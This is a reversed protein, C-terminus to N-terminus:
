VGQMVMPTLSSQNSKGGKQQPNSSQSQSKNSGGGKRPRSVSSHMDPCMQTVTKAVSNALLCNQLRMLRFSFAVHSRANRVHLLWIKKPPHDIWLLPKILYMYLIDHRYNCFHKKTAISDSFNLVDFELQM